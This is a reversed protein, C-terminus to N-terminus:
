PTATSPAHRQGFRTKGEVPMAFVPPSSVISGAFEADDLSDGSRAPIALRSPAALSPIMSGEPEPEWACSRNRGSRKARYLAQDAQEILLAPM